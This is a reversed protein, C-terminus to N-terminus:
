KTKSRGAVVPFSALKTQRYTDNRDTPRRLPIESQDTSSPSLALNRTGSPIVADKKWLSIGRGRSRSRLSMMKLM